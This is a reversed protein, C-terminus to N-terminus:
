IERVAQPDSEREQPHLYRSKLLKVLEVWLTSLIGVSLVPLWHIPKLPVTGLIKNFFPLYVAALVLIVGYLVSLLLYKNQFFGETKIIFTNLNKFAFIYILSSMALSTFAITRALKLDGTQKLFFWFFLLSFFGTTLSIVSILIKTQSDFLSTKQIQQPTMESLNKEKKEFGLMIDPPGDCILNIWLIQVVTLPPPFHLLLAVSIIIIEGFSNSLVYAIVKKINTFILRGEECAAFITQFNSDLLILDSAEKAVETANEVAIGIDAKKLALADNVGDGTMAVVEGNDQLAKVIKLKQHPTIRTFLIIDEVKNKLEEESIKELETAELINEPKLNFGLNAAIKEATKRYDGTVIKVKIGMKQCLHIAEKAEPRIPDEVGALGLWQFNKKEKLDGKEKMAAGVVRLGDSAWEEIIKLIKKRGNEKIDCFSLIIEPAGWIFSTQKEEINNITLSFKKESEFPEGYIRPSKNLLGPLNIEKQQKLWNWFCIELHSKQNNSLALALLMKETDYFDTKSVQMVGQTLTGTKDTCIVSTGGLTEVSLLRKVLGKRKLIRRVGLALIVTVAIPLGEPIASVSLVIATKFMNLVTEQNIVGLIFILLCLFGVLYALSRTFKELKLQLLTKEEKIEELTLGIKGFETEQGIKTVKMVALGSLVITGMFVLSSGDALVKKEVAEEEGTLVAEQILVDQGEILVGDAPVRDGSALIVLDGPLLQSSEIRKKYGDRIVVSKPRLMKALARLTRQAQYEQYFGMLSNFIVVVGILALDIYEKFILSISAAFLLIYVLPSKFQSFFLQLSSFGEKEPLVNEGFQKKLTPIDSESLGKLKEMDKEIKDPNRWQALVKETLIYNHRKFAEMAAVKDTRTFKGTRGMAIM